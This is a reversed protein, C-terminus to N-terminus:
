GWLWDDQWVQEYGLAHLRAFTPAFDQVIHQPRDEDIEAALRAFLFGGPQLAVDIQELTEVPDVLHEFVDMATIMDFAQLPLQTVKLDLCEAPLQRQGLRWQSFSLLTSSIDALTVGFGHRAFLIGGSGVGAGFDLYRQCGHQQAFQLATVYALPTSDEVLTHWWMLEYLLAESADYYQVVSQRNGDVVTAQWEGKLTALAQACRRQIEATDAHMYVGLEAVLSEPLTRHAELCLAEQWIDRYGALLREQEDQFVAATIEQQDVRQWLAKLQDPLLM